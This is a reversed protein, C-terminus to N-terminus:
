LDLTHRLADGVTTFDPLAGIARNIEAEAVTALDDTMIVSDTRLGSSMGAPAGPPYREAPIARM